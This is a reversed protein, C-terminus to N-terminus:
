EDLLCVDKQLISPASVMSQSSKLCIKVSFAAGPMAKQWRNRDQAKDKQRQQGYGLYRVVVRVIGVGIVALETDYHVRDRGDRSRRDDDDYHM